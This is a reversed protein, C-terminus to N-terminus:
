EKGFLIRIQKRAMRVQQDDHRTIDKRCMHGSRARSEGCGDWRSVDYLSDLNGGCIKLSSKRISVFAPLSDLFEITM